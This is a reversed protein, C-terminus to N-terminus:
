EQIILKQTSIYENSKMSVLYTGQHFSSLDIQIPSVSNGQYTFCVRGILDILEVTYNNAQPYIVCFNSAPNPFLSFLVKEEEEEVSVNHNVNWGMDEMMAITLNGPHHHVEQANIFPTMLSNSNAAPFTAENLHQMSSGSAYSTPAYLRVPANGNEAFSLPANFYVSNSVFEVGLTTSNNPFLVTDVLSEGAGNEMFIAFTSPMGDLDPFPFSAVLPLIDSATVEGFSGVGGDDKALSLFALGHGMEHLMVTVFDYQGAGPNGDTRFYWNTSSNVYIDMDNEGVNLEANELSNALSSPYWVSDQPATSFDKRGNPVTIALSTPSGLNTYVIKVKIPITSNLFDGWIRGTYALASDIQATTGTNDFIYTSGQSFSTEIMFILVLSLIVKKM